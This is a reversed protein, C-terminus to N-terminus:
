GLRLAKNCHYFVIKLRITTIAVSIWEVDRVLRYRGILAARNWNTFGERYTEQKFIQLKVKVLESLQNHPQYVRPQARRIFTPSRVINWCLM